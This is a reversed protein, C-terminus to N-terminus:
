IQTLRHLRHNILQTGSYDYNLCTPNVDFNEPIHTIGYNLWHRLGFGFVINLLHVPHRTSAPM